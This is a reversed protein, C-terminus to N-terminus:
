TEHARLHTYSVSGLAAYCDDLPAPIPYEPALRYDVSIIVVGIESALLLNQTDSGEPSGIIYGGGHVHLYGPGLVKKRDDPIYLLCRVDPANGQPIFIEKRTVKYSEADELPPKLSDLTQRVGELSEDNIETIIAADAIVQLDLHLLHKTSKM